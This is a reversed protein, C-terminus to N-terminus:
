SYFSEFKVKLSIKWLNIILFNIVYRFLLKKNRFSDWRFEIWVTCPIVFTLSSFFFRTIWCCCCEVLPEWGLRAWGQRGSSGLVIISRLRPNALAFHCFSSAIRSSFVRGLGRPCRPAVRRRPGRAAHVCASVRCGWKHVVAEVVVRDLFLFLADVRSFLRRASM